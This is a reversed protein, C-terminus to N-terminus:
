SIAQYLLYGLPLLGIPLLVACGSQPTSSDLDRAIKTEADAIAKESHHPDGALLTDPWTMNYTGHINFAATSGSGKSRIRLSWVAVDSGRRTVTLTASAEDWKLESCEHLVYRGAASSNEVSNRLESSIHAVIQEIAGQLRVIEERRQADRARDERRRDDIGM